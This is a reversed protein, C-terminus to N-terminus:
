RKYPYRVSLKQPQLPKNFTSTQFWLNGVFLLIIREWFNLRYCVTVRGDKDKFAPLPLYEPQNEAFTVNYGKFEVPKM